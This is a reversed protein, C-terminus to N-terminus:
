LGKIKVEDQKQFGYRKSLGANVELVYKAPETSTYRQLQNNPVNPQPQVGEYITVIRNNDIFIIDLPIRTDKMWFSSLVPREFVFLMGKEEDLNDRGSLGKAREEDTDAVEVAFTKGGITITPNEEDSVQRLVFFVAVLSLVLLFILFLRRM